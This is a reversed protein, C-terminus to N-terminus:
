RSGLRVREHGCPSYPGPMVLVANDLPAVAVITENMSADLTAVDVGTLASARGLAAARDNAMWGFVDAYREPSLLVPRYYQPAVLHMVVTQNSPHDRRQWPGLGRLYFFPKHSLSAPEVWVGPAPKGRAVESAVIPRLCDRVDRFPSYHVKTQAV